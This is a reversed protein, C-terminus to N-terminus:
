FTKINGRLCVTAAIMQMDGIIIVVLIYEGYFNKFRKNLDFKQVSTQKVFTM